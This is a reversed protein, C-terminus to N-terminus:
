RLLGRYVSLQCLSISTLATSAGLAARSRYASRAAMYLPDPEAVRM